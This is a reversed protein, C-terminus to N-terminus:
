FCILLLVKLAMQSLLQTSKQVFAINPLLFYLGLWFVLTFRDFMSFNNDFSFIVIIVVFVIVTIIEM